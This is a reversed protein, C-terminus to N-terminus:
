TTKYKNLIKVNYMESNEERFSSIIETYFGYINKSTQIKRMFVFSFYSFLLM